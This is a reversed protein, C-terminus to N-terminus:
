EQAGQVRILPGEVIEDTDIRRFTGCYIEGAPETLNNQRTFM